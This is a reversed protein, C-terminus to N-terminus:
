KSNRLTSRIDGLTESIEALSRAVQAFIRFFLVAAYVVVCAVALVMLMNITIAFSTSDM